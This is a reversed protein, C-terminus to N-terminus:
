VKEEMELGEAARESRGGRWWRLGAWAATGIWLLLTTLDVWVARRMKTVDVGEREGYVGIFMEGFIGFLVLLLVCLISEWACIPLALRVRSTVPVGGRKMAVGLVPLHALATAGTLFGVVVGYVWKAPPAAHKERATNLAGGYLGIITLGLAFQLLRLLLQALTKLKTQKPAPSPPMPIPPQEAGPYHYANAPADPHAEPWAAAAAKNAKHKKAQKVGIRFVKLLLFWM